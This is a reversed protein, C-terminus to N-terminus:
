QVCRHAGLVLFIWMPAQRASLPKGLSWSFILLQGFTIYRTVTLIACHKTRRWRSAVIESITRDQWFHNAFRTIGYHTQYQRMLRRHKPYYPAQQDSFSETISNWSSDPSNDAFKYQQSGTHTAVVVVPIKDYQDADSTGEYNLLSIAVVAHYEISVRYIIDLTYEM